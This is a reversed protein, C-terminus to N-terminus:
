SERRKTVRERCCERRCPRPAEALLVGILLFGALALVLVPLPVIVWM